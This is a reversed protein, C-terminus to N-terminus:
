ELNSHDEAGHGHDGVPHRLRQGGEHPEVGGFERRGRAAGQIAARSYTRPAPPTPTQGSCGQRWPRSRGPERGAGEQGGPGEGGPHGGPRWFREQALDRGPVGGRPSDPNTRAVGGGWPLGLPLGRAAFLLAGPPLCRQQGEPSPPMVWPPAKGTGGWHWAPVSLDTQPRPPQCSIPSRPPPATPAGLKARPNM